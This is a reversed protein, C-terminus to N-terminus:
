QLLMFDAATVAAAYSKGSEHIPAENFRRPCAPANRIPHSKGSEHIPAENFRIGTDPWFARAQWKGSEHIPAENFSVCTRRSGFLVVKSGRNM